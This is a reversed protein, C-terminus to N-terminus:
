GEISAACSSSKKFNWLGIPQGDFWLQHLNGSFKSTKMDSPKKRNAPLQGIYLTDGANVDLKTYRAPGAGQVKVAAAAASSSGDAAIVPRVSLTGVNGTREAEIKYWLSDDTLDDPSPQLKLPHTLVHTGGGVNWMFRIQRDVMEVALFDM